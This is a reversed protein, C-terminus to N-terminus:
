RFPYETTEILGSAERSPIHCLQQPTLQSLMQDAETDGAAIM